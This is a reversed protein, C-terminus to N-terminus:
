GTQRAVLASCAAHPGVRSAITGPPYDGFNPKHSAVIILDAGIKKAYAPDVAVRINKLM